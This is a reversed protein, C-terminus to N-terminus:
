SLDENSLLAGGCDAIRLSIVSLPNSKYRSFPQIRIQVLESVFRTHKGSEIVDILIPLQVHENLDHHIAMAHQLANVVVEKVIHEHDFCHHDITHIMQTVHSNTRTESSYACVIVVVLELENTRM